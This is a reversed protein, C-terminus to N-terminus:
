HKTEDDNKTTEVDALAATWGIRIVIASQKMSSYVQGLYVAYNRRTRGRGRGRSRRPVQRLSRIELNELEQVEGRTADSQPYMVIIGVNHINVIL